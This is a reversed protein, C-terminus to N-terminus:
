LLCIKEGRGQEGLCFAMEQGHAGGRGRIGSDLVVQIVEDPTMETLCKALAEYGRQGIYEDIECPDIIGCNQLAIRKQKKYYDTDALSYGGQMAQDAM